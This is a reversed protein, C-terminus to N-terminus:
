RTTCCPKLVGVAGLKALQQIRPMWPKTQPNANMFGDLLSIANNKTTIDSPVIGIPPKLNWTPHKISRGAGPQTHGIGVSVHRCECRKRLQHSM